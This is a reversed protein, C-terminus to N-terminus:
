GLEPACLFSVGFNKVRPTVAPVSTCRDKSEEGVKTTFLRVEIEVYRGPTQGAGDIFPKISVPSERGPAAAVEFWEADALDEPTAATRALFVVFTGDPVDVDWELDQWDTPQNNTVPCGEFVQRYSGPDNAALRRQEGSFDSYTYPGVFGSMPKEVTADNITAGPTIVMAYDMRYPIGWVRGRRDVAIGKANFEAGGTGAVQAFELTEANIRWVGMDRAAGWVWGNADAAIGHVGNTEDGAVDRLMNLRMHADALPDYRIIGDGGHAGGLWVRQACDVTVGYTAWEGPCFDTGGFNMPAGGGACTAGGASDHNEWGIEIRELIADDCGDSCSTQTCVTVCVPESNCSDDVCRTTDIRGIAGLAEGNRYERGSIWLNDRGDLALGYTPTPPPDLTFLIEGTEADLKHIKPTWGNETLQGGTWVFRAGKIETIVPEGDPVPEVIFKTPIEQVAVGRADGAIDTTWLVCDDEGLALVDGVGSSTTIQGDGNTDPCNEGKASVKSIFTGFRAGAYVDGESDVSTRSPGNDNGHVNWDVAVEYRGLETFTNTDVKSVTGESTNAIWILEAAEANDRQIVLAGDADLGVRTSPNADVDFPTDTGAGTETRFCHQGCGGGPTPPLAGGDFRGGGDSNGANFGGTGGGNGFPDPGGDRGNGPTVDDRTGSKDGASCAPSLGITTALLLCGVAGLDSKFM